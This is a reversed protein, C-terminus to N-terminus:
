DNFAEPKGRHGQQLQIAVYAKLMDGRLMSIYDDADDPIDYHEELDGLLEIAGALEDEAVTALAEDGPPGEGEFAWLERHIGATWSSYREDIPDPYDNTM